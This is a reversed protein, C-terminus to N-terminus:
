LKGKSSPSDKIAPDPALAARLARGAAKFLAECAHHYNDGYELELHLTIRAEAALARFFEPVLNVDFEWRKREPIDAQYVLYPRASIDVSASALSEDMPVRAAGFRTIGKKDGLAKSIAEGIVLGLDEFTHHADVETDGSATLALDFAAHRAMATIMHSVFGYPTEVRVQGSGDLDLEVKIDTEKTKRSVAAKRTKRRPM